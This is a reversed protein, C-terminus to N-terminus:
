QNKNMHVCLEHLWKDNNLCEEKTSKLIGDLTEIIIKGTIQHNDKYTKRKTPDTVGINILPFENNHVAECRAYQYFIQNNSFLEIFKIFNASNFDDISSDLLLSLSKRKQYRHPSHNINDMPGYNTELISKIEAYKELKNFKKDSALKSDPWQHFFLLDINEYLDHMGSYEIIIKKFSKWDKDEPYRNKAIAAIQCILITIGELRFTSSCYLRRARKFDKELGEFYSKIFFSKSSSM